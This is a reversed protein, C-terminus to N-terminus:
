PQYVEDTYHSPADARGDFFRWFALQHGENISLQSTVGYSQYADDNVSIVVSPDFSRYMVSADAYAVNVGTAHSTEVLERQHLVDAYLARSGVVQQRIGAPQQAFGAVVGTVGTTFDAPEEMPEFDGDRNWDVDLPHRRGTRTLDENVFKRRNYGSRVNVWGISTDVYNPHTDDGFSNQFQPNRQAPCVTAGGFNGGSFYYGDAFLLGVTIFGQYRDSEPFRSVYNQVKSWSQLSPPDAGRRWGSYIFTSAVSELLEWKMPTFRGDHDSAYSSEAIMTQRINSACAVRLSSNRAAGIAPVLLGILLAIVSVVVLLEILTFGERAPRRRM